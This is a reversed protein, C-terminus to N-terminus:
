RSAYAIVKRHQMLICGLERHSADSYITFGDNKSPLALILAFMLQNKLAQFSKERKENWEFPVNKWTLQTLPTEIKSFDKVFRQYYGALSMFSQIETVNM